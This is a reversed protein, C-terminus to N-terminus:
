TLTTESLGLVELALRRADAVRGDKLLSLARSELLAEWAAARERQTPWREMVSPRLQGMLEALLGYEEGVVGELM